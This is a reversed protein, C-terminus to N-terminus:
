TQIDKLMIGVKRHVYNNEKLTNQLRLTIHRKINKYFTCLFYFLLFITESILMRKQITYVHHKLDNQSVKPLSEPCRFLSCYGDHYTSLGIMFNLILLDVLRM